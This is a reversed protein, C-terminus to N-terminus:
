TGNVTSCISTIETTVGLLPGASGTTKGSFTGATHSSIVGPGLMESRELTWGQILM